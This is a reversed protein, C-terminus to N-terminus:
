GRRHAYALNVGVLGLWVVLIALFGSTGGAIATLPIAVGLSVIALTLHQDRQGRAGGGDGRERLRADVRADITREVREVFSDVLAPEMEPGLELRAALVAEAEERPLEPDPM